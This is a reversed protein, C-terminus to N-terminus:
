IAPSTRGEPHYGYTQGESGREPLRLQLSALGQGRDLRRCLTGSDWWAHQPDSMPNLAMRRTRLRTSARGSAASAWAGLSATVRVSTEARASGNGRVM